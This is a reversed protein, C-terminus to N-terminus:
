DYFLKKFSRRARRTYRKYQERLESAREIGLSSALRSISELDTPLSNALRGTQLHMRLRIRTCFLYANYLATFDLHDVISARKLADLAELTGPVRVSEIAPGNQLQLLQVVFEVDTLGGPGLKLHFDPDEGAPIRESEVRAKMSRIDAVMAATPPEAWITSDLLDNFRETLDSGGFGPRAKVLALREWPEITESYYRTFGSMSRAM